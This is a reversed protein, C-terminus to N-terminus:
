GQSKRMEAMAAEYRAQDKAAREWTGTGEARFYTCRPNSGDPDSVWEKPFDPEDIGFAMARGLIQCADSMDNSGERVAREYECKGCFKGEFAAGETSNSPRYPITESM